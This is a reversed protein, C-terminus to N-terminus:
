LLSVRAEIFQYFSHFEPHKELGAKLYSLTLPLDNLYNSKNDRLHLRCFVGLVKIHRQLGCYDFAQQFEALSLRQASRSQQYFDKIWSRVQEYPWQIYCDNLLSVLDYAIPGIMADQFDIVGLPGDPEIVMLNRSHYDRHIVYQPQQSITLALHAFVDDLMKEEDDQLSLQLYAQLFWTKFLSMEQLMHAHNFLPLVPMPQWQHLHHLIDFASQYLKDAAEPTLQDLMLTDGFDELLAFGLSENAEYIQPTRIGQSRFQPGLTLFTHMPEKDPPADMVIYRQTQVAVRLYRRFSADGKLPKIHFSNPPFISELWQKLAISREM